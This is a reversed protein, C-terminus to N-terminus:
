ICGELVQLRGTCVVTGASSPRGHSCDRNGTEWLTHVQAQHPMLGENQRCQDLFFLLMPRPFLVLSLM